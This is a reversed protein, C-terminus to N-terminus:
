FIHEDQLDETNRPHDLRLEDMQASIYNQPM